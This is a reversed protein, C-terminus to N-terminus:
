KKNMGGMPVSVIKMWTKPKTKGLSERAATLQENLTPKSYDRGNKVLSKLKSGSVASYFTRKRSMTETKISNM